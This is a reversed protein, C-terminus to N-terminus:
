RTSSEFLRRPNRHRHHQFLRHQQFHRGYATIGVLNNYVRNDHVPGSTSIGLINSTFRIARSKPRRAPLHRPRQHGHQRLRHKGHDTRHRGGLHRRPQRSRHQRPHHQRKRPVPSSARAPTTSKTAACWRERCRQGPHGREHLRLGHEAHDNADAGDIQIGTGQDDTISGGPIGYITNSAVTVSITAM